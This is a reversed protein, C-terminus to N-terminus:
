IVGDKRLGSLQAMSLGLQGVFVEENHQGLLPSPRTVATAGAVRFPVGPCVQRGAAPHDIEVFYGREKLHPDAAVEDITNVIGFPMRLEEARALIEARDHSMLWPLILADFEEPREQRAFTSKFLPHDELEPKEVLLAMLPMNGLGPIVVIHGDRCPYIGVPHGVMFRTFARRRVVGTYAYLITAAELGSAVADAISLDIRRGEGGYAALLCSMFGQLGAMYLPLYGPLRLPQERSGTIYTAGGMAALSASSGKYDRYPGNQGFNSISLMTLRPNVERLADYGLGLSPMVRPEFNEVVIDSDRVLQRFLDKGPGSKLNLTIGKKNTNLYLFVGSKEMHPGEKPFPGVTRAGDGGPKEVKVVDAGYDALLKTCYPGAIYHTLDLVKLNSLIGPSM